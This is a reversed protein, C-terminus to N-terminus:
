VAAALIPVILRPSLASAPLPARKRNELKIVATLACTAAITWGDANASESSRM